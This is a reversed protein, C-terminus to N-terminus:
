GRTEYGMDWELCRFGSAENLGNEKMFNDANFPAAAKNVM